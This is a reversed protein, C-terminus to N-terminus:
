NCRCSMFGWTLCRYAHQGCLRPVLTLLKECALELCVCECVSVCVCECVCVCVCVCDKSDCPMYMGARQYCFFFSQM